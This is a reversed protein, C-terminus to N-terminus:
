EPELVIITANRLEDRPSGFHDAIMGLVYESFSMKAAQARLKLLAILDDPVDSLLIDNPRLEIESLKVM